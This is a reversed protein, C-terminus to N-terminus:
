YKCYDDIKDVFADISEDLDPRRSFLMVSHTDKFSYYNPQGKNSSIRLSYDSRPANLFSFSDGSDNDNDNQIKKKSLISFQDFDNKLPSENPEPPSHHFLDSKNNYNSINTTTNSSQQFGNQGRKIGTRHPVQIFQTHNRTPLESDFNINYDFSYDFARKARQDLYYAELNLDDFNWRKHRHFSSNQYYNEKWNIENELRHARQPFSYETM